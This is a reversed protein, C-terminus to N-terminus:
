YAKSFYHHKGLDMFTNFRQLQSTPSWTGIGACENENVKNIKKKEREM